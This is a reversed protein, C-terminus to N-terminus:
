EGKINLKPNRKLDEPNRGYTETTSQTKDQNSNLLIGGDTNILELYKQELPVKNKTYGDYRYEM